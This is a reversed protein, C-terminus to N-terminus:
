KSKKLHKSISFKSSWHTIITIILQLRQLPIVQPDLTLPTQVRNGKKYFAWSIQAYDHRSRGKQPSFLGKKAGRKCIGLYSYMWTVILEFM